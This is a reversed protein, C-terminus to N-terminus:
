TCYYACQLLPEDKGVGSVTEVKDEIKNKWM